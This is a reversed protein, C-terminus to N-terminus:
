ACRRAGPTRGLMLMYYIIKVTDVEGLMVDARALSVIPVHVLQSEGKV